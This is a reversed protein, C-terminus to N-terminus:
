IKKSVEFTAINFLTESYQKTQCFICLCWNMPSVSKRSSYGTTSSSPKDSTNVNSCKDTQLPKSLKSEMLHIVRPHTFNSYCKRHCVIEASSSLVQIRDISEINSIDDLKRRKDAYQKLTSISQLQKKELIDNSKKEQCILCMNQMYSHQRKLQDAM